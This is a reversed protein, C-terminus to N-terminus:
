LWIYWFFPPIVNRRSLDTVESKPPVGCLLREALKAATRDVEGNAATRDVEALKAATREVEGNATTRDVEGSVWLTATRGVEGTGAM